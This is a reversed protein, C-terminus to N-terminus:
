DFYKECILRALTLLDYTDTCDKGHPEYRYSEDLAQQRKHHGDKDFQRGAKVAAFAEDFYLEWRKAYYTSILGSISRNAYDNINGGWTTIIKTANMQYFDKTEATKGLSRALDIWKEM